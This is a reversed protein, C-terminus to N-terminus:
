IKETFGKERNWSEDKVWPLGLILAVPQHLRDNDVVAGEM